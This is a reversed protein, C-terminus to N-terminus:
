AESLARRPVVHADERLRFVAVVDRLSQAQEALAHAAASAQEVLAANQQTVQDMQASASTIEGVVGTM